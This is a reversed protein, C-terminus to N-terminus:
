GSGSSASQRGDVHVQKNALFVLVEETPISQGADDRQTFGSRAVLEVAKQSYIQDPEPGGPVVPQLYETM